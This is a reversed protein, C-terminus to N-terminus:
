SNNHNPTDSVETKNNILLQEFKVKYPRGVRNKPKDADIPKPTTKSKSIKISEDNDSATTSPITNKPKPGRKKNEVNEHAMRYKEREYDTTKKWFEYDTNYRNKIYNKVHEKNARYWKLRNAKKMLIQEPTMDANTIKKRPKRPKPKFADFIAQKLKNLMTESVHNPEIKLIYIGDDLEIDINPTDTQKEMNHKDSEINISAM